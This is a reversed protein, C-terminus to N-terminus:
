LHLADMSIVSPPWGVCLVNQWKVKPYSWGFEVGRWIICECGELSQWVWPHSKCCIDGRRALKHSLCFITVKKIAWKSCMNWRSCMSRLFQGWLSCPFWTTIPYTWGLRTRPIFRISRWCRSQRSKHNMQVELIEKFGITRIAELQM